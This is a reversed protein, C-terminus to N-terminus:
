LKDKESDFLRFSGLESGIIMIPNDRTDENKINLRLRFPTVEGTPYFLIQPTMKEDVNHSEKEFNFDELSTDPNQIELGGIELTVYVDDTFNMVTAIDERKYQIWSLQDWYTNSFESMLNASQILKKGPVKTRYLFEYGNENVRLGIIRGEMASRDRIEDLILLFRDAQEQVSGELTSNAPLAISVMSATMGMLFIVMLIEILTFGENRVKM